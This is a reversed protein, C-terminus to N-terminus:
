PEGPGVIIVKILLERNSKAVLESAMGGTKKESEIAAEAALEKRFQDYRETPVTFWRIETVSSAPPASAVSDAQKATATSTAIDAEARRRQLSGSASRNGSAKDTQDSREGARRRVIFEIDANPETIPSLLPDPAFIGSRLSGGLTPGIDLADGSSRFNERGAAVEQAQIPPRRPLDKFEVPNNETKASPQLAAPPQEKSLSSNAVSKRRAEPASPRATAIGSDIDRKAEKAGPQPPMGPQAFDRASPPKEQSPLQPTPVSLEPESRIQAEKQYLFGALVAVLVVAVAPMPVAIKLRPFLRQWLTPKFEIERVLAMVRLAFGAPPDVPPLGAMQEICDLIGDAEERCLPCSLLHLEISKMRLSDLSKELYNSLESQVEQCNM